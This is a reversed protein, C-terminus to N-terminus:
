WDFLGWEDADDYGWVDWHPTEWNDNWAMANGASNWSAYAPDITVWVFDKDYTGYQDTGLNDSDFWVVIEDVKAADPVEIDSPKKQSSAGNSTQKVGDASGPMAATGSAKGTSASMAAGGRASEDQKM